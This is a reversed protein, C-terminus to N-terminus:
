RRVTLLPICMEAATASGHFAVLEAVRAPESRTALVAYDGHCAAVVEGIRPVHADTVPGFWGEAIAEDRPVVWAAAGLVERWAALVDAAAGPETYVMRMRPEGAVARVGARLRDDGDIDFRHGPPVDVQGHDATVMLAAEPPLGDVLLGLLRDVEAAAAMWQPSNLGYQHGAKDLDPHYGYVLTPRTAERILALMRDALGDVDEAGAYRGGRYAAVTLGTGAFAPRSVVHAPVGAAEARQFLTPLPQWRLPDPDDGWDLHNLLRGSEPVRLSFGVLGHAGPPAGTGLSALSTPTTSPFGATIVRATAGHARGAALDALGPAVPAARAILQHGLGDVLLVAVVRADRLPGTALGLPDAGSVGLAALAGPLVDSLSGEGYAPRVTSRQDGGGRESASARDDAGSAPADSTV